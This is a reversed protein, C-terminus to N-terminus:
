KTLLPLNNKQQRRVGAMGLVATVFFWGAAPLPVVSANFTAPTPNAAWSTTWITSQDVSLGTLVINGQGNTGYGAVMFVSGPDLDMLFDLRLINGTVLTGADTLGGFMLKGDLETGNAAIIPDFPPLPLLRLLGANFPGNIRGSLSFDGSGEYNGGGDIKVTFSFADNGSVPGPDVIVSTHDIDPNQVVADTLTADDATGRIDLTGGAGDDDVTFAASSVSLAVKVACQNGPQFCSPGILAASALSTILMASAFVFVSVVYKLSQM